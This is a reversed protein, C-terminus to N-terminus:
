KMISCRMGNEHTKRCIESYAFLFPAVGKADNNVRPESIYYEYTGDRPQYGGKGAMGGLGAVLCIDKLVFNDDSIELKHKVVADFIKQGYNFYEAPLYGLRAGKMHAYAIACTGSTELYNGACSAANTVQFFMSTAPDAQKLLADLIDKLYMHLCSAESGTLKEATDVLAMAYWGISRTWFNRSLGTSKDAWFMERSEDYGHYMLGTTPDRMIEYVHAFQNLVDNIQKRDNFLVEYEAYFPAVMYLGDLWVQNPYIKKHWFNGTSIRPHTTLQSYLLDAAKRYKSDHTTRYLDFLVKGMNINDCNYEEVRYGLIGDDADVYFDIFDKAFNYYKMDGTVNYIDLVAKIMCGDIYNWKPAKGQLVHEINWAPAQPTSAALLSDVFILIKEM